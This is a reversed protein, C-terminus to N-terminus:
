DLLYCPIEVHNFDKCLSKRFTFIKYYLDKLNQIQQLNLGMENELIDLGEIDSFLVIFCEGNIDKQKLIRAEEKLNCKKLFKKLKKTSLSRLMFLYKNDRYFSRKALKERLEPRKRIRRHM